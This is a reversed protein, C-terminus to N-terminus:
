GASYRPSVMSDRTIADRAPRVIRCTPTAIRGRAPPCGEYPGNLAATKRDRAVSASTMARDRGVAGSGDSVDASVGVTDADAGEPRIAIFGANIALSLM